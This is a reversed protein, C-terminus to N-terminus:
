GPAAGHYLALKWEGMEDRLCVGSARYPSKEGGVDVSGEVLFWAHSGAGRTESIDWEWAVDPLEAFIQEFFPGLNERGFALEGPDSGAIIADDTVVALAAKVDKAEVARLFADLVARAYRSSLQKDPDSM